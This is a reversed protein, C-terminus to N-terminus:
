VLQDPSQLESTHEESRGAAARALRGGERLGAGLSRRRDVGGAPATAAAPARGRARAVVCGPVPDEGRALVGRLRGAKREHSLPSRFLTTYPFLSPRHRQ